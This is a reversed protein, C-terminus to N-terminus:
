ARMSCIGRRGQGTHLKWPAQMSRNGRKAEGARGAAGAGDAHLRGARSTGGARAAHSRGARGAGGASSRCPAHTMRQQVAQGARSAAEGAQKNGMCGEAGAPVQQAVQGRQRAQRAQTHAVARLQVIVPPLDRARQQAQCRQRAHPRQLQPVKFHTPQCLCRHPRCRRRRSCLDTSSQTIWTATSERHMPEKLRGGHHLLVNM